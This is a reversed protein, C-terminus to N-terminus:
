LLGKKRHIAVAFGAADEGFEENYVDYFENLKRATRFAAAMAGTENGPPDFVNVVYFVTREGNKTKILFHPSTIGDGMTIEPEHKIDMEGGFIDYPLNDVLLKWVRPVKDRGARVRRMLDEHSIHKSHILEVQHDELLLEM